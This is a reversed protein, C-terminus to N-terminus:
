YTPWYHKDRTLCKTKSDSKDSVLIALGANKDKCLTHKPNKRKKKKWNKVKM